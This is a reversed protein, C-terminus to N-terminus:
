LLLIDSIPSCFPIWIISWQIILQLKKKTKVFNQRFPNCKSVYVFLPILNILNIVHHNFQDILYFVPVMKLVLKKKKIYVWIIYHLTPHPMIILDSFIILWKMEHEFLSTKYIYILPTSHLSLLIQRKKPGFNWSVLNLGFM